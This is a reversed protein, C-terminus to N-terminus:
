WLPRLSGSRQFIDKMMWHVATRAFGYYSTQGALLALYNEFLVAARPLAKLLRAESFRPFVFYRMLKAPSFFRVISYYRSKYFDYAKGPVGRQAAQLISEAAFRGSLLAFSIGEGTLPDMLGAADGTLLINGRGPTKLYNGFSIYHGKIHQPDRGVVHRFFDTFLQKMERNVSYSGGMGINLSDKKPFVWAYGWRVFGFYIEPLSKRERVWDRPVETQLCLAHANKDFPGPFLSSRVRSTVGDAGIIFDSRFVTGNKLIVQNRERDVSAVSAGHVMEPGKKAALELLYADFTFRSTQYLPYSSGVSNLLGNRGFFRVGYTESEIAPGWANGFIGEFVSRARTSLLGGCLKDRPFVCKDILAVKMGASCLVHAAASGAPGCGAIVVDFNKM